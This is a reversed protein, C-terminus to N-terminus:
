GYRDLSGARQHNKRLSPQLGDFPLARHHLCDSTRKDTEIIRNDRHPGILTFSSSMYRKEPFFLMKRSAISLIQRHESDAHTGTNAFATSGGDLFGGFYFYNSLTEMDSRSSPVDKEPKWLSQRKETAHPSSSNPRRDSSAV